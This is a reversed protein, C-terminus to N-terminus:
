LQARNDHVDVVLCAAIAQVKSLSQLAARFPPSDGSISNIMNCECCFPHFATLFITSYRPFINLKGFCHVFIYINICKIQIKILEYEGQGTVVGTAAPELGEVMISPSCERLTNLLATAMQISMVAHYIEMTVYVPLCLFLSHSTWTLSM